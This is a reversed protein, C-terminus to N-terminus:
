GKINSIKGNEFSFIRTVWRNKWYTWNDQETSHTRISPPYGYAMLVAKKSMGKAVTGAKVNKQELKSLKYFAGGKSMVNKKSFLKKVLQPGQINTHKRKIIIRYKGGTKDIFIIEDDDVSEINVPSGIPLIAGVHYNTALIKMPREYWINVQTYLSAGEMTAQDDECLAPQSIFTCALLFFLIYQKIKKM